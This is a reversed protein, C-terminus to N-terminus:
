KGSATVSTSSGGTGSRNDRISTDAPHEILSLKPERSRVPSPNRISKSASHITRVLRARGGSPAPGLHSSTRVGPPRVVHSCAQRPSSPGVPTKRASNSSWSVTSTNAARAPSRTTAPATRLRLAVTTPIEFRKAAGRAM